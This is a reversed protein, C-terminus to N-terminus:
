SSPPDDLAGETILRNSTTDSLGPDAISSASGVKAVKEQAEASAIEERPYPSGQCADMDVDIM